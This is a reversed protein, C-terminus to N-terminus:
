MGASLWVLVPFAVPLRYPSAASGTSLRADIMSFELNMASVYQLAETGWDRTFAFLYYRLFIDANTKSVEIRVLADDRDTSYM